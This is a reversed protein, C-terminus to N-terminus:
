WRQWWCCCCQSTRPTGPTGSSFGILWKSASFDQRCLLRQLVVVCCLLSCGSQRYYLWLWKLWFSLALCVSLHLGCYGWPLFLTVTYPVLWLSCWFLALLLYIGCGAVDAHEHSTSPLFFAPPRFLPLPPIICLQSLFALAPCLLVSGWWRPFWSKFKGLFLRRSCRFCFSPLMLELIWM